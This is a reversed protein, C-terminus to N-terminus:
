EGRRMAIAIAVIEEHTLSPGNRVLQLVQAELALEQQRVSPLALPPQMNQGTHMQHYITRCFALEQETMPCFDNRIGFGPGMDRTIPVLQGQLLM